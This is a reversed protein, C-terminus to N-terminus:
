KSEKIATWRYFGHIRDKWENVRSVVVGNRTAHLFLGRDLYIGTHSVVDKPYRIFMLDGAQYQIVKKWNEYYNDLILNGGRRAWEQDYNELDFLEIGYDKYIALVLGWCDLGALDRGHNKYPIGLYKKVIADKDFIIMRVDEEGWGCPIWWLQSYKGTGPMASTNSQM